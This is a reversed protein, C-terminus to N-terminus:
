VREAGGGSPKRRRAIVEGVGIGLLWPTAIHLGAVPFYGALVSWSSWWYLARDDGYTDVFGLAQYLTFCGLCSAHVCVLKAAISLEILVLSAVLTLVPTHLKGRLFVAICFVLLASLWLTRQGVAVAFWFCSPVFDLADVMSGWFGTIWIAAFIACAGVLAQRAPRWSVGVLVAISLCVVADSKVWGGWAAIGFVIAVGTTAVFMQRLSFQWRPPVPTPTEQSALDMITGM